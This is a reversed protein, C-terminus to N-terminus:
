TRQGINSFSHSPLIPILHFASAFCNSCNCNPGVSFQGRGEAAISTLLAIAARRGPVQTVRRAKQLPAVMKERQRVPAQHDLFRTRSKNLLSPTQPTPAGNEATDALRDECARIWRKRAQYNNTSDLFEPSVQVLRTRNTGSSRESCKSLSFRAAGSVGFM